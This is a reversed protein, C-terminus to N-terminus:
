RTTRLVRDEVSAPNVQPGGLEAGGENDWSSLARQRIVSPDPPDSGQDSM